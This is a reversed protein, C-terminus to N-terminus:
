GNASYINSDSFTSKRIKWTDGEHAIIWTFHGEHSTPYPEDHGTDSWRGIARVDNGVANLRDVKILRNNFRCRQFDYKAYSKEIAQRGHSTGHFVQVGDETYLAAVAAADHSNFAADYKSTLARIQEGIKSDVTDKQQAFTPLVIGIALAMLTLLSRLKM